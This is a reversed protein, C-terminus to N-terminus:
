TIEAMICEGAETVLFEPDTGGVLEGTTMPAYIASGGSGSADISPDGAVGDGNNVTTNTGNQFTRIAWTGSGTRVLFGTGTLAAVATLDADLPQSAAQAAAAAGAADFSAASLGGDKILKGTTGDFLVINNAVASAPGVVDGTGLGAVAADTYANAAALTAADGAEVFGTNPINSTGGQGAPSSLGAVKLLEVPGEGPSARGLVYGPRIKDRIGRLKRKETM